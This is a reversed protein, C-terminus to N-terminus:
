SWAKQLFDLWNRFFINEIDERSYGRRTLLSDLHQLDAITELDYPTQEKGYAGDLDSGIAIHRSNGALQCIHDYHDIVNELKIGRQRPDDKGRVWDNTLMWVDLVGGIVAGREILIKIQEDSLQRQHSVLSRCHHCLTREQDNITM